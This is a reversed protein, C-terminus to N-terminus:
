EERLGLAPPIRSMRYAPYLASLLAAVVSLLVAQGLVWPDVSFNLSWGFARQNIVHVMVYALLIGTPLALLGTLLGLLVSQGLLQRVVEAPTMGLARLISLERVKELALAMLASLIGIFAVGLALIRLVGTVRFTQEFIQLSLERITATARIEVGAGALLQLERAVKEAEGPDKLFLALGFIGPDEFSELFTERSLVALGQEPGYNYFIGVVPFERWGARTQLSLRDGVGLGIREAHPESLLVGGAEVREWVEPEAQRFNVSGRYGANATVGVVQAQGTPTAVMLLRQQILERLEPRQAVAEVFSPELHDGNWIAGRDALVCYVDAQLTSELWDILTKRFSDVMLGISVASAVALTLAAAAVGVRSLNARLDRVVLRLWWPLGPPSLRPALAVAAPTLLAAALLFFLLGFLGALLGPLSVVLVGALGCFLGAGAAWSVWAETAQEATRRHVLLLASVRSARWAPFCGVALAGLWGLAFGKLLTGGASQYHTIETIYYLDNLTRTVLFVLGKGMWVGLALGLLSGLAALWGVESLVARFLEGRTMGLTRLRGLTAQRHVVSFNTVNYILFLGVVLSLLSLAKLNLHFAETMQALTSERTGVPILQLEAPLWDRVQAVQDDELYLDIRTLRGVRDLLFQATSIDALVLNALAVRSREDASELTGALRVWLERQGVRAPVRDEVKIGLHAATSSSLVVKERSGILGRMGDGTGAASYDRVQGELLPDVGLLTLTVPRELHTLTLFGSVVPAAAVRPLQRRLEVFLREEFSGEAAELRYNSRGALAQGSLRFSRKASESALDMAVVVAVGVAVGVVTLVLLWPHRKLYNRYSRQLLKM